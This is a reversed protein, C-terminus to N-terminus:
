QKGIEEKVEARYENMKDSKELREKLLHAVAGAVYGDGLVNVSTRIRDSYFVFINCLDRGAICAM